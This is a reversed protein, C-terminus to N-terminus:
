GSLAITLEQIVRPNQLDDGYLERLQGLRYRVTQPHVYLAAAIDDRRGHHLLWARLTDILKRKVAPRLSNMPALVKERLDGLADTDATLVLEAL